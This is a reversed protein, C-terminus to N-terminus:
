KNHTFNPLCLFVLSTSCLIKFFGSTNLIEKPSHFFRGLIKYKQNLLYKFIHSYQSINYPKNKPPSAVAM